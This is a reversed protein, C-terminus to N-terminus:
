IDFPGARQFPHLYCHGKCPELDTCFHNSRWRTTYPLIHLNRYHCDHPESSVSNSAGLNHKTNVVSAMAVSSVAMLALGGAVKAFSTKKM